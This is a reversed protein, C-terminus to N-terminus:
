FQVKLGLTYVRSRPMSGKDIGPTLGNNRNMSVEPDYGSYKTWVALNQMSLSVVASKVKVKSMWGSPLKYSFSINAVRFYSAGELLLSSFPITSARPYIQDKNLEMLKNIEGRDLLRNGAQDISVYMKDYVKKSSTYGNGPYLYNYINGNYIKGGIKFECFLSVSLNKYTVQNTIGGTCIPNANGLHTRDDATVVNDQDPNLNKYKIWGPEPGDPYQDSLVVGEKPIWKGNEFTFEDAQYLGDYIYGYYTGTRRGVEFVYDYLAGSESRNTKSNIFWQDGDALRKIVTQNFSMNLTTRWSVNKRSINHSSIMFEIGRSRTAGVNRISTMFGSSPQMTADMLLDKTDTQFADFTISLKGKFFAMDLGVNATKNTEWKLDKNGLSPLYTNVLENNVPMWSARMMSWFLYNGINNNGSLGYSLRLKLNHFVNAKKIFPEESLRWAFAGAPFYGWKNNGSFRSSGDARMTFTFLYRDLSFNVRGFFSVANHKQKNTDFLDPSTGMGLHDLGFNVEPFGHAGYKLRTNGSTQIEQGLLIDLKSTKFKKQYSLTHSGLINETEQKDVSGYAGGAQKAQASHSHYFKSRESGGKDYGVRLAYILDTALKYTINFNAGISTKKNKDTRSSMLNHPNREDVEANPDDPDIYIDDEKEYIGLVPKYRFLNFLQSGNEAYAGNSKTKETFYSASVGFSFRDSVNSNMSFRISNKARGTNQMTGGVDNYLYSLNYQIKDSGGNLNFSHKQTMTRNNLMEKEWNVGKADAYNEYIDAIPGYRNEWAELTHAQQRQYDFKLYDIPSLLGMDGAYRNMQLSMDYTFTHRNKKGVKTKILIVGNAGRAGYIATASADKLVDISEVENIDLMSLANSMPLGDVIYLPSNDQTISVGSRVRVQVNAELDGSASSITLGPLRGKLAEELNAVHMDELEKATISAVTGTLDSRRATGYGIAVVEDMLIDTSELTVKLTKRGELPIEQSEMGIFSFSLVANGDPASISFEGKVSTATYISHGKVMVTVGPLPQGSSKDTVVGTVDFKKQANAQIPIQFVCLLTSLFLVINKM